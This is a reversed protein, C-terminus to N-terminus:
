VSLACTKRSLRFLIWISCKKVTFKTLCVQFINASAETVLIQTRKALSLMDEFSSHYKYLLFMAEAVLAEDNYHALDIAVSVFENSVYSSDEFIRTVIRMASTNVRSILKPNSSTNTFM